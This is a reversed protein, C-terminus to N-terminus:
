DIKLGIKRTSIEVWLKYAIQMDLVNPKIKIKQQGIGIEAEDLEFEKRRIWLYKRSAAFWVVLLAVAAYIVWKNVVFQLDWDQNFVIKLIDM